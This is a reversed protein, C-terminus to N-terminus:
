KNAKDDGYMDATGPMGRTDGTQSKGEPKADGKAAGAPAMTSPATTSAPPAAAAPSPMAAPAVTPRPPEASKGCGSLSLAAAALLAIASREISM